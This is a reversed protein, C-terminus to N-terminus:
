FQELFRLDNTWFYRIDEIRHKLMTIREPGMGFAFGSHIAPDYGGNKLVEPHVMGCGLIELWGTQKCVVCGAGECLMCEVDMEASPETFPFHSARFRVRRAAGFMRHAFSILTGKLDTMSVHRGVALGEVQHFQIESRATIQEYRYCMGPLIVRIPNPCFERMARIQGPSTHTRLLIGDVTTYFTDWMDRAPHHAPINLLEFNMEETEIDRSRYIQFGMDAWIQCIRRLVQTSPHLRGMPVPRGPLTVDVQEAALAAARAAAQLAERRAALAVELREKVENALKGVAPREGPPLDALGRLIAALSGKRGLYRVRVEELAAEDAAAELATLAEAQLAALAQSINTM